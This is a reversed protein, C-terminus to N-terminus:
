EEWLDNYDTSAVEEETVEEEQYGTDSVPADFFRSRYKERWERDNQEYRSKWDEGGSMSDYTDSVDELLSIYDDSEKDTNIRDIRALLEERTLVAM